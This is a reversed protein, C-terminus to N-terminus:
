MQNWMKMLKRVKGVSTFYFFRLLCFIFGCDAPFIHCSLATLASLCRVMCKFTGDTNFKKNRLFTM